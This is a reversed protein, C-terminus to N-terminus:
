EAVDGDVGFGCGSAQWEGDCVQGIETAVKGGHRDYGSDENEVSHEAKGLLEGSLPITEVLVEVKDATCLEPSDDSGRM